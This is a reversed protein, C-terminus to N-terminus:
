LQTSHPADEYVTAANTTVVPILGHLDFKPALLMEEEVDEVSTHVAFPSSMTFFQYHYCDDCILHSSLLIVLIKNFLQTARTEREALIAM